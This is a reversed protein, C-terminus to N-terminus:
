SGIGMKQLADDGRSTLQPAEEPLYLMVGGKVPRIVIKKENALATTVKIPDQGEFRKKFAENFGSYVTHIGKYNGKRLTVIAKKIFEEPSINVSPDLKLQQLADDGRSTFTPAEEPLYLMVGGRVPRIVIKGETALQTTVKIPDENAFHKKFAENFGSYVTHIGKYNGKRLTVIAKKIFEEKTLNEAM